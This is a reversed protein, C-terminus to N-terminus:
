VQEFVVSGNEYFSIIACSHGTTANSVMIDSSDYHSTYGSGGRDMLYTGGDHIIAVPSNKVVTYDGSTDVAYQMGDENMYYVTASGYVTINATVTEVSAGSVAKGDLASVINAILTDQEALISGIDTNFTDLTESMAEPKMTETTGTVLRVKDALNVLTSDQILYEAM